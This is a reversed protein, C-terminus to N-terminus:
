DKRCKENAIKYAKGLNFFYLYCATVPKQFIEEMADRYTCVQMAYRDVAAAVTDASVRDTKFDIITIGDDEIIGCDVVGQLLLKEDKVEPYYKQADLLVSFKFERVVKSSKILKEGLPSMFFEVIQKCDISDAQQQTLLNQNVLRVVEKQVSLLDKCAHYRIYQMLLHMVTGYAKATNESGSFTAKRFRHYVTQPAGDAIEQDKARGKLQTATRKSPTTTAFSHPYRFALYEKMREMHESPNNYTEEVRVTAQTEGVAQVVRIKWIPEAYVTEGPHGGLAFFEGAETRSMATQLVWEGPCSVTSALLINGSHSKRLAIDQLDAELNKVAYTMILRDRARTMAVYLVRLEESLGEELIKRSIARKAISPYRIRLRHDACGLGLGYEKHCLVQAHASEENFRRSLGCLFVVPFELGKSKHISMITVGDTGGDTSGVSLGHERLANIRELFYPLDRRGATEFDSAMKCFTYLNDARIDGDEMASYIQLLRTKEFVHLILESISDMGADIRLTNLVSLFEKCKESSSKHIAEFFSCRKDHNRITALDDATFAFVPSAMAAILPIDQLPNDIAQLISLLVNIEEAALLDGGDGTSCYIGRKELANQFEAGVSGPSRLLIVIDSPMIPRLSDDQRIMHTGDLLEVIREAVFTAEEAYTDSDVQVGYLEVEPEGLPIHPVGERLMEEAGYDLGGIKESMCNEFVSNVSSLIGNSSRFNSSLLVKRGQGHVAEEAPLYRDYKKLFIGPDALRFQYISQKVDGVMFCNQRKRTLVDFIADQVGNSDQYEDVMIERFRESLEMAAATPGSRKTGLLLDLTRHELDSFDLIRRAHKRKQYEIKFSFVTQVLGRAAENASVLDDLMQSSSGSFASLKKDLDARCANRVAKMQEQLQLDTCKKSFTLRGYDISKAVMVEDWTTCGCLVDLQQITAEFLAVPKEFGDTTTAQRVCSAFADRHMQICSKLDDILYSGWKTQSVDSIGDVEGDLVCQNLWQEPQLHCMASNYVKLIIEPIQRDDRGFGQSDIFSSFCPNEGIREYAANLVQELAQQQLQACEMEDGVRFDPSIDLKYAYEKLINGCFSHVTSINALYLRQMQRQLHRNQPDDAILEVLRKSIKGRLESAAAKTYTIILFDDVNAPNTTDTVYSMLRDVLVKTKGSGAAASVLLKGGRDHVATYQQRTLKEAM